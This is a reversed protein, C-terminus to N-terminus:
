GIAEEELVPTSNRSPDPGKVAESSNKASTQGEEALDGQDGLIASEHSKDDEGTEDVSPEDSGVQDNGAGVGTTVGLSNNPESNQQSPNLANGERNDGVEWAAPSQTGPAAGVATLILAPSGQRGSEGSEPVVSAGRQDKAPTSTESRARGRTETERSPDGGM